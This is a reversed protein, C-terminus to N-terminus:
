FQLASVSCVDTFGNFTYDYQISLDRGNLSGLGNRIELLNPGSVIQDPILLIDGNVEAIVDVGFDGFNSIRVTNFNVPDANIWMTFGYDGEGCIELVEYSGLFLDRPYFCSGDSIEADPNYNVAFPDTCGDERRCASVFIILALFLFKKFLNM